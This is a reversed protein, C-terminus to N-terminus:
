DTVVKGGSLAKDKSSFEELKKQSSYLKEYEGKCEMLEAHTGHEVIEGQKLMYICDSQVVNSLRHSILLVTKEKALEYIVKMILEESEADINSTAEDFIYVPINHLLARAM